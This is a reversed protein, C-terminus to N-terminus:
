NTVAMENLKMVIDNIESGDNLTYAQIIKDGSKKYITTNNKGSTRDTRGIIILGDERTSNFINRIGTILTDNSFLRPNLLNMCRSIDFTGAGASKDFVDYYIFNVKGSKILEKTRPNILLIKTKDGTTAIKKKLLKGLLKSLIFRNSLYPNLMIGFCDAYSVNGEADAFYKIFTKRYCYIESYKDSLTINFNINRQSLSSVLNISTIGDSAALEQITYTKEPSLLSIIKEDLDQFSNGMTTKYTGNPLRFDTIMAYFTDEDSIKDIKELDFGLHRVLFKNKALRMYLDPSSIILKIM